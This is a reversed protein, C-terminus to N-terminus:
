RQYYATCSLSTCPKILAIGSSLSGACVLSTSVSANTAERVFTGDSCFLTM